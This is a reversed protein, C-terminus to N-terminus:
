RLMLKIKHVIQETTINAMCWPVSAGQCDSRLQWDICPMCELQTNSKLEVTSKYNCFHDSYKTSGILVICPQNLCGSIHAGGSDPTITINCISWLAIYEDLNLISSTNIVNNPVNAIYTFQSQDSFWIFTYNPHKIALEIWQNIALFKMKGHSSLQCGIIPQKLQNIKLVDYLWTSSAQGKYISHTSSIRECPEYSKSTLQENMVNLFNDPRNTKLVVPLFDIRNVLNIVIDNENYIHSPVDVVPSTNHNWDLVKIDDVHSTGAIVRYGESSTYYTIYADPYQNRLSPLAVQLIMLVDGIGICRVVAIKLKNSSTSNIYTSTPLREILIYPNSFQREPINGGFLIGNVGIIEGNKVIISKWHRQMNDTYVVGIGLKAFDKGVKSKSSTTSHIAGSKLYYFITRM